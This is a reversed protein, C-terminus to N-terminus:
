FIWMSLFIECVKDSENLHVGKKMPVLTADNGIVTCYIQKNGTQQQVTDKSQKGSKGYQLDVSFHRKRKLLIDAWLDM